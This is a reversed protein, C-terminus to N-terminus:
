RRSDPAPDVTITLTSRYADSPPSPPTDVPDAGVPWTRVARFRFGDQDIAPEWELQVRAGPTLVRYGAVAVASLHVWCGGPTRDSDVVGWGENSWIRVTGIIAM